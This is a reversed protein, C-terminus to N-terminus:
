LLILNPDLLEEDTIDTIDSESGIYIECAFVGIILKEGRSCM